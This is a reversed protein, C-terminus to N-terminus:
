DQKKGTKYKEVSIIEIEGNKRKFRAKGVSSFPRDGEDILNYNIDISFSCNNKKVDNVNSIGISILTSNDIDGYQEDIFEKWTDDKEIFEQIKNELQREM